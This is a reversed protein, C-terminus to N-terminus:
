EGDRVGSRRWPAAAIFDALSEQDAPLLFEEALIRGLAENMSEWDAESVSVGIRELRVSNTPFGFLYNQGGVGGGAAMKSVGDTRADVSQALLAIVGAPANEATYQGYSLCILSGGANQAAQAAAAATHGSTHFVIDCGEAYLGALAAAAATEDYNDGTFASHLRISKGLANGAFIVGAKFGFEEPATNAVEVAIGVEGNETAAAALYGALFSGGATDFYVGALNPAPAEYAYELTIFLIDPYLAAAEAAAEAGRSDLCWIIDPKAAAAEALIDTFPKSQPNEFYSVDIDQGRLRELGQACSELYPDGAIVGDYLAAAVLTRAAQGAQGPDNESGGGCSVSVCAFLVILFVAGITRRGKGKLKKGNEAM